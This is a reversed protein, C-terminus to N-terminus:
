LIRFEHGYGSDLDFPSCCHGLSCILGFDYRTFSLMSKECAHACSTAPRDDVGAPLPAALTQGHDLGGAHHPLPPPLSSPRKGEAGPSVVRSAAAYALPIRWPTHGHVHTTM